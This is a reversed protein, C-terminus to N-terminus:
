RNSIPRDAVFTTPLETAAATMSRQSRPRPSPAGTSAFTQAKPARGCPMRGGRRSRLDWGSPTGHPCRGGLGAFLPITIQTPDTATTINSDWGGSLDLFGSVHMGGGAIQRDYDRVLRDFRQCGIGPLACTRAM